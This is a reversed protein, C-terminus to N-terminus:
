FIKVTAALTLGTIPAGTLDTATLTASSVASELNAKVTTENSGTVVNCGITVFEGSGFGQANALMTRLAPATFTALSISTGTGAVGSVLITGDDVQKSTADASVTVTAPLNMTFDISGIKAGTALGSSSVKVLAVKPTAASFPIAAADTIGTKNIASNDMFESMAVKIATSAAPTMTVSTGTGSIEGALGTLVDGLTSGSGKMIQSITALALAMNKQATTAAATATANTADVPKTTIINDLKFLNAIDANANNIVTATLTTGAKKLALESLPTVMATTNGAASGVAARLPATLDKEAGTAEDKFRGTVEIIVPGTFPSIDATFNGQADLPVTKLLDGKTATATNIGFIQVTGSVFQGKMATGSVITPQTGGGGGGCGSVAMVALSFLMGLLIKIKM